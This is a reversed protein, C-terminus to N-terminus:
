LKQEVWVRADALGMFLFTWWQGCWEEKLKSHLSSDIHIASSDNEMEFKPRWQGLM